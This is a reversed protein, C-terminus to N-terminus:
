VIRGRCHTGLLSCTSCKCQTWDPKSSDPNASGLLNPKIIAPLPQVNGSGHEVEVQEFKYTKPQFKERVKEKTLPKSPKTRIRQIKALQQKEDIKQLIELSLDSKPITITEIGKAKNALEELDANPNQDYLKLFERYPHEGSKGGHINYKIIANALKEQELHPYILLSYAADEPLSSNEVSKKVKESLKNAKRVWQQVTAEGFSIKNAIEKITEYKGLAWLSLVADGKEADSLDERQTNEILKFEMSTADDLEEVKADIETFGVM